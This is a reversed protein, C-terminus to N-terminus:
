VRHTTERSSHWFAIVDLFGNKERYYVFYRTRGLYFRRVRPDRANEVQSGIGPSEVLLDLALRLESEIAGPAALRNEDWWHAARLIQRMARPKIRATLRM